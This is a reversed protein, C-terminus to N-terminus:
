LRIKDKALSLFTDRFSGTATFCVVTRKIENDQSMYVHKRKAYSVTRQETGQVCM